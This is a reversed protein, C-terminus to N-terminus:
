RFREISYASLDIDSDRGSVLQSVIRGTTAGATLGVHGHGFAYIANGYRLARGIVPLSDPTSPRFGLWQARSSPESRVLDAETEPYMRRLQRELLDCRKWNPAAKLGAFEVTGACRLRGAMPTAFIKSESWLTPVSPGVSLGPVEIHYGRETDLVVKDGLMRACEKSWAGLAVVV